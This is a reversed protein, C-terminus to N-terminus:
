LWHCAATGDAGKAYVGDVLVAVSLKELRGGEIVETRTTKSIEYNVTEDAKQATDRPGAQQEGATTGPLQTSVTVQDQAEQTLTNENRTQTSRIVRGDPDFSESVQEVRNFDMQASVQVRARGTGVVSAVIEEVQGRIRREYAVQKEAFAVGADAGENAGDALLNGSEDVISVKEPKLGDVASAVLHRIARINGGDLDGSVKLVISARPEAKEREFLRREPMVLHVRAQQVREITRITRSLEGELARLKNMQQVFSTASFNDGKDFVEYGINGGTPMGKAAFDMRLRLVQDQPVLIVQGEQRLSFPVGRTELERVIANSDQFALDSFLTTMAPTTVRMIVFGFFAVLAITVAVMAALRQVGFRQFAELFGNV